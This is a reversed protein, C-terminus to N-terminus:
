KRQKFNTKAGVFVSLSSAPRFWLTAVHVTEPVSLVSKVIPGITYPTGCQVTDNPLQNVCM